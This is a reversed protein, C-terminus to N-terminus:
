HFTHCLLLALLIRDGLVVCVRDLLQEKTSMLDENPIYQVDVM